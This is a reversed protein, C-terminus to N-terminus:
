FLDERLIFWLVIFLLVLVLVVAKSSHISYVVPPSPAPSLATLSWWLPHIEVFSILLDAWIISECKKFNGVEM